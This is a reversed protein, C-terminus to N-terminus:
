AAIDEWKTEKRDYQVFEKHYLIRFFLQFHAAKLEKEVVASFLRLKKLFISRADSLKAEKSRM